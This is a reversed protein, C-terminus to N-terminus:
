SEGAKRLIRKRLVRLEDIRERALGSIPARRLEAVQEDLLAIAMDRGEDYAAKRVVDIGWNTDSM